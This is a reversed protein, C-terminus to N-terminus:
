EKEGAPFWESILEISHAYANTSSQLCKAAWDNKSIDALQENEMKERYLAQRLGELASLVEHKMFVESVGENLTCIDEKTLPKHKM